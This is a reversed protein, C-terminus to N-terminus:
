FYDEAVSFSVGTYYHLLIEDYSAGNKAMENAGYQSMGVGHGYGHVTFVYGDETKEYEFAHNHYMLTSGLERIRAAAPAVIGCFRTVSEVSGRFEHPMYGIGICSWSFTNHKKVLADTTDTIEPLEIHTLDCRLGNKKLQEALWDGEYDCTGSIQVTSFGMDAVRALTDAFGKPTQCADRVTYLQAGIKM